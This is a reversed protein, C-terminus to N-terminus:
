VFGVYCLMRFHYMLHWIEQDGIRIVFPTNVKSKVFDKRVKVINQKQRRDDRKAVAHNHYKKLPMTTKQKGKGDGKPKKLALASTPPALKVQPTFFGRSKKVENKAKHVGQFSM